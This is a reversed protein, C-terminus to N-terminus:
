LLVKMPIMMVNSFDNDDDSDMKTVEDKEYDDYTIM